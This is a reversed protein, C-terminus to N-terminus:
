NGKGPFVSVGAAFGGVEIRKYISHTAVDILVLFGPDTSGIIPHHPPEGRVNECTVYATKSDESIDIGHPGTGVSVITTFFRNTQADIVSVDGSAQNCVYLYKQDRTVECQLPKRGVRITDRWIFTDNVREIVSVHGTGNLTVYIFRDDNRVAVQYPLYVSSALQGDEVVRMISVVSDNSTRIIALNDSQNAGVYLYKGDHSLRAGHTKNMLLNSFNIVKAVTM